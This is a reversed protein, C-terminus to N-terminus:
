IMGIYCTHHQCINRHNSKSKDFTITINKLEMLKEAILENLESDQIEPLVTQLPEKFGTLQLQM